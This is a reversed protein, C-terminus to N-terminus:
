ETNLVVPHGYFRDFMWRVDMDAKDSIVECDDLGWRIRLKM